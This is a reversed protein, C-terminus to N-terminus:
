SVQNNESKESTLLEIPQFKHLFLSIPKNAQYIVIYNKIKLHNLLNTLCQIYMCDGTPIYTGVKRGTCPLIHFTVLYRKEHQYGSLRIEPSLVAEQTMVCLM